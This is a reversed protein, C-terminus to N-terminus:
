SEEEFTPFLLSYAFCPMAIRMASHFMTLIALISFLIKTTKNLSSSPTILFYVPIGLLLLLSGLGLLGHESLMRSFETHASIIKGYGYIDRLETANGPGVGTFLYDQFIALDIKYIMTRGTLDLIMREGYTGGVIGYRQSIAGETVSVITYWTVLSVILIALTNIVFIIKKRSFFFHYSFALVIAIIATFLGGRSFTIMGLGLFFCLSFLDISKSGTLYGKTVQGYSLGIIIFGFITSVQNPGFGGGNLCQGPAFRPSFPFLSFVPRSKCGHSGTGLMVAGNCVRAAQM